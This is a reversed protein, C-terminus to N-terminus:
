HQLRLRKSAATKVQVPPAVGDFGIDDLAKLTGLWPKVALLEDGEYGGEVEYEGEEEGGASPPEHGEQVEEAEQESGEDAAAGEGEDEDSDVQANIVGAEEVVLGESAGPGKRDRDGEAELEGTQQNVPELEGSDVEVEEEQQQEEVKIEFEEQQEQRRRGVEEAQELVRTQAQAQELVRTQAQAQELVKTQAQAQETQKVLMRSAEDGRPKPRLQKKVGVNREQGALARTLPSDCSVGCGADAEEGEKGQENSEDTDERVGWPSTPLKQACVDPDLAALSECREARCASTGAGWCRRLRSAVPTSHKTRDHQLSRLKALEGEIRQLRGILLKAGGGRVDAPRPPYLQSPPDPPRLPSAYALKPSTVPYPLYDPRFSSSPPPYLDPRFSSSYFDPRFTSSPHFDPQFSYPSLFNPPFSSSPYFDPHFSSSPYFDPHFSSTNMSMNPPLSSPVFLRGRGRDQM